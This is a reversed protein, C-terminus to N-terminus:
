ALTQYGASPTGRWQSGACLLPNLCPSLSLCPIPLSGGNICNGLQARQPVLTTSPRSEGSCRVHVIGEAWHTGHVCWSLPHLSALPTRLVEQQTAALDQIQDSFPPRSYPMIAEFHERLM